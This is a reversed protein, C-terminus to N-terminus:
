QIAIWDLMLSQGWASGDVRYVNVQFSSTGISKTTVAFTDTYTQGTETRVTCIVKPASGFSSPFNVTYTSINSGSGLTATGSQIMSHTTGGGVQLQDTETKGAVDLKSTPSATGVGVNGAGTVILTNTNGWLGLNIYNSSNGDSVHNYRFEAMNNATEAKGFEFGVLSSSALSGNVLKVANGTLSTNLHLIGTPSSTGIGVNGGSEVTMKVSSGTVDKILFKGAGEGAANATSILEWVRGGSAMSNVYLATGYTNSGDFRAVDYPTTSNAVVHLPNSPSSTGIGVSGGNTIALRNTSNTYFDLGFANGGANRKSGIGEGSANGFALAGAAVSGSNTNNNDVTAGAGVTLGGDMRGRGSVWFESSSQQSGYQNQIYDGDGSPVDSSIILDGNSNAQVNGGASLGSIRVNGVVELKQAPSTAGIGINGNASIRLREAAASSGPTGTPKTFFTLYGGKNSNGQDEAAFARIGASADTSSPGTDDTSDFLLSGLADDVATTPDERTIFITGGTPEGVNLKADPTSTGMGVRNTSADLYFTNADTDGEIKFDRDLGQANFIVDGDGHITHNVLGDTFVEIKGDNGGTGADSIKVLNTGNVDTDNFYTDSGFLADGNSAVKFHDVGGDQVVFEGTGDLNVTLNYSGNTITTAETLSGGLRIMDAGANVNLGNDASANLTVDGTTGGGIIGDGAVVSTIDGAYSDEWTVTGGGASTLVQGTVGTHGGILVAGSLNIDGVVDLKYEPTSTGIGVRDTSADTFLLNADTDGQANFDVDTGTPNVSVKDTGTVETLDFMSVGGAWITIQDTNFELKTDVNGNHSLYQDIGVDGAVDLEYDPATTGIGVNGNDLITMRTAPAGSGNSTRFFMAADGTADRNTRRVAIEGSGPSSTTSTSNTFRLISGTEDASSNSHLNLLSTEAGGTGGSIQLKYDSNTNGIGVNGSVLLGDAGQVDVAGADATIVRGVGSGGGDYAGDLTTVIGATNPIERWSNATGDWYWFSETDTDYVLMGNDSGNTPAFAGRQTTTMRPLLVGKDTATIDLISQADPAAGSSNISVAQGFTRSGFSGIIAVTVLIQLTRNSRM